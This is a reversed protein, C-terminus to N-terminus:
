LLLGSVLRSDSIRALESKPRESYYSNWVFYSITKWVTQWMSPCLTDSFHKFKLHTIDAVLCLFILDCIHIYLVIGITPVFFTKLVWFKLEWRNSLQSPKWPVITTRMLFYARVICVIFILFNIKTPSFNRSLSIIIFYMILFCNQTWHQWQSIVWKQDYYM